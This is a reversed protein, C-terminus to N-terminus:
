GSVNILAFDDFVELVIGPNIKNKLIYNKVIDNEFDSMSIEERQIPNILNISM